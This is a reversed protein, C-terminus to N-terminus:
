FRERGPMRLNNIPTRRLAKLLLNRGSRLLPYLHRARRASGFLWRNIRDLTSATGGRITLAHIADAGYYLQGDVKVVMGEDIDLGRATIEEMVASPARADVLELEPLSGNRAVARCYADCVPCQADYVLLMDKGSM